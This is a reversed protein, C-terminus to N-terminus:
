CCHMLTPTRDRRTKM